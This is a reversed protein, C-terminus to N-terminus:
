SPTRRASPTAGVRTLVMEGAHWTSARGSFDTDGHDEAKPGQFLLAFCQRQFAVCEGPPVETADM